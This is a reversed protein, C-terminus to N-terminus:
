FLPNGIGTNFADFGKGFRRNTTMADLGNVWSYPIVKSEITGAVGAEGGVISFSSMSIGCGTDRPETNVALVTGLVIAEDFSSFFLRRFKKLFIRGLVALDLLSSAEGVIDGGDLGMGIM